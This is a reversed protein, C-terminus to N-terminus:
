KGRATDKVGGVANQVKGAAKETKGEAKTKADGTVQGAGTQEPVSPANDRMTVIIVFGADRDAAATLHGSRPQPPSTRVDALREGAM